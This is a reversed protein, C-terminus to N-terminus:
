GPALTASTVRNGTGEIHRKLAAFMQQMGQNMKRRMFVVDLLAGLAGFKFRYSFDQAVRTSQGEAHLTTRWRMFTVPWSSDIMEFEIMRMPDWGTVRERMWGKPKVVCHRIAGVGEPGEVRADAVASNYIRVAELDALVNWVVHLPADIVIEHHLESM